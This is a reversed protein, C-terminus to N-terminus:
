WSRVFGLKLTNTSLQYHSSQKEFTSINYGYQNYTRLDAVDIVAQETQAELNIAATPTLRYAVDLGYENIAATAGEVQRSGFGRGQNYGVRNYVSMGYFASTTVDKLFTLALGFRPILSDLMHSKANNTYTNRRLQLRTLASLAGTKWQWPSYATGTSLEYREFSANRANDGQVSAHNNISLYEFKFDSPMIGLNRRYKIGLFIPMGAQEASNPVSQEGDSAFVASGPDQIVIDSFKAYGTGIEVDVQDAPALTPAVSYIEAADLRSSLVVFLLFFLLLGLGNRMFSLMLKLESVAFTCCCSLFEGPLVAKTNVEQFGRLLGSALWLKM